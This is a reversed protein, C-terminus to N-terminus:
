ESAVRDDKFPQSSLLFDRNVPFLYINSEDEFSFSIWPFQLSNLEKETEVFTVSCIKRPAMESSLFSGSFIPVLDGNVIIAIQTRFKGSQWHVELFTSSKAKKRPPIFAKPLVFAM